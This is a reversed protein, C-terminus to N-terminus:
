KTHMVNYSKPCTPNHLRKLYFPQTPRFKTEMVDSEFPQCIGHNFQSVEPQNPITPLHFMPLAVTPCIRAIAGVSKLFFVIIGETQFSIYCFLIKGLSRPGLKWISKSFRLYHLNSLCYPSAVLLLHVM